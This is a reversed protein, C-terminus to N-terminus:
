QIPEIRIENINTTDIPYDLIWKILKAIEDPSHKKVNPEYKEVLPTAVWGMALYTVKIGSQKFASTYSAQETAKRLAIKEPGYLWQKDRGTDGTSGINIIQGSKKNDLWTNYVKNFLISQSFNDLRSNNIFVDYDLSFISFKDMTALDNLDIGSTRKGVFKLEHSNLITNLAEGIAYNPNGTILIKM